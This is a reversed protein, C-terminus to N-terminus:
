VYSIGSGARYTNREQEGASARGGGREQQNYVATSLLVNQQYVLLLVVGSHSEHIFFYFKLVGVVSRGVGVVAISSSNYKSNHACVDSARRRQQQNYM